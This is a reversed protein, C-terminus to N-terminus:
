GHFWLKAQVDVGGYINPVDCKMRSVECWCCSISMLAEMPSQCESHVLVM